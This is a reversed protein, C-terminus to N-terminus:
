QIGFNMEVMMLSRNVNELAKNLCFIYAMVHLLNWKLNELFYGVEDYDVMHGCWHGTGRESRVLGYHAEVGCKCLVPLALIIIREKEKAKAELWHSTPGYLWEISDCKCLGRQL